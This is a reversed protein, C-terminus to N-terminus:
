GAMEVAEAAVVHASLTSRWADLRGSSVHSSGAQDGIEQV